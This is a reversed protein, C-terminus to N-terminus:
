NSSNPRTSKRDEHTEPQMLQMEERKKHRMARRQRHDREDEQDFQNGEHHTREAEAKPYKDRHRGSVNQELHQAAEDDVACIGANAIAQRDAYRAVGQHDADARQFNKDGNDLSINESKQGREVYVVRDVKVLKTKCGLLKSFSNVIMSASTAFSIPAPRTAILVPM